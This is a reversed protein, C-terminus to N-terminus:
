GSNTPIASCYPYSIGYSPRLTVMHPQQRVILCLSATIIFTTMHAGPVIHLSPPLVSVSPKSHYVVGVHNAVYGPSRHRMRWACPPNWTEVRRSPSPSRTPTDVTRDLGEYDDGWIRELLYKRNFVRGPNAALLHLLVFEKATLAVHLGDAVVAHAAPDIHLGPLDIVTEAGPEQRAERMMEVRRLIAGVRALLARMAFPKVLYDDVGMELGLVRDLETGKATLMLIATISTRRIRRCVELGDM